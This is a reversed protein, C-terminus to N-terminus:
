PHNRLGRVEVDVEEENSPKLRQILDPDSVNSQLDFDIQLRSTPLSDPMEILVINTDTTINKNWTGLWASSYEKLEPLDTFAVAALGDSVTVRGRFFGKSRSFKLVVRRPKGLPSLDGLATNTRQTLSIKTRTRLLSALRRHQWTTWSVVALVAGVVLVATWSRAPGKSFCAALLVIALSLVLIAKVLQPRIDSM